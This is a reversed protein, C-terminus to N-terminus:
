YPNFFSSYYTPAEFDSLGYQKFSKRAARWALVFSPARTELAIGSQFQYWAGDVIQADTLPQLTLGFKAKLLKSREKIARRLASILWGDLTAFQEVTTVLPYFSM